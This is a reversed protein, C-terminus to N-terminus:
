KNTKEEVFITRYHQEYGSTSIHRFCRKPPILCLRLIEFICKRDFTACSLTLTSPVSRSFYIHLYFTQQHYLFFFVEICGYIYIHICLICAYTISYVFWLCYQQIFSFCLHHETHSYM